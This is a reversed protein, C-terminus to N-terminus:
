RQPAQRTICFKYKDGRYFAQKYELPINDASFAVSSIVFLPSAKPVNLLGAIEDDAPAAEFTQDVFAPSIEEQELYLEYSTFPEEQKEKGRAIELLRAGTSAPFYSHYVVLPEDNAIGLLRLFMIQKEIELQLISNIEFSGPLVQHSLIKTRGKLGKNRLTESFLTIKMLGQVIKHNGNAQVEGSGVFTGKGQVRYLLGEKVAESIAQRM